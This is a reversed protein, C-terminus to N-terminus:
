TCLFIEALSSVGGFCGLVFPFFAIGVAAYSNKQRHLPLCLSTLMGDPRGIGMEVCVLEGTVM